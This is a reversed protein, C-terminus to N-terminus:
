ESECWRENLGEELEEIEEGKPLGGAFGVKMGVKSLEDRIALFDGSAILTRERVGPQKVPGTRAAPKVLSDRPNCPLHRSRCVSSQYAQQLANHIAQGTASRAQVVPLSITRLM